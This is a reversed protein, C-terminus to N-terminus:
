FGVGALALSSQLPTPSMFSRTDSNREPEGCAGTCSLCAFKHFLGEEVWRNPVKEMNIFLKM